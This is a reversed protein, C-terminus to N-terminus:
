RDRRSTDSRQDAHQKPETGVLRKEENDHGDHRAAYTFTCDRERNPIGGDEALRLALEKRLHKRGDHESTQGRDQKGARQIKDALFIGVERTLSPQLRRATVVEIQRGRSAAVVLGRGKIDGRDGS